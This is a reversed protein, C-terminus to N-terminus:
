RPRRGIIYKFKYIHLYYDVYTSLTSAWETCFHVAELARLGDVDKYAWPRWSYKHSELFGCHFWFVM